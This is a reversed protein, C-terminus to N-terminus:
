PRVTCYGLYVPDSRPLQIHGYGPIWAPCGLYGLYGMNLEYGTGTFLGNRLAYGHIDPGTSALVPYGPYGMYGMDPDVGSLEFYGM